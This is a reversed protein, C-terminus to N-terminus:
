SKEKLNDRESSVEHEDPRPGRSVIDNDYTSSVREQLIRAEYPSRVFDFSTNPLTVCLENNDSRSRVLM